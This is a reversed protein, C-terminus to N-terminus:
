AETSTILSIILGGQEADLISLRKEKLEGTNIMVHIMDNKYLFFTSGRLGVMRHTVTRGLEYHYHDISWIFDNDLISNNTNIGFMNFSYVGTKKFRFRGNDGEIDTLFTTTNESLTFKFSSNKDYEAVQPQLIAWDNYKLSRGDLTINSNVKITDAEIFSSNMNSTWIEKWRKNSQGLSLENNYKPEVNSIQPALHDIGDIFKGNGYIMDECVLSGKLTTNTGVELNGAISVDGYNSYSNLFHGNFCYFEQLPKEMTGMIVNPEFAVSSQITVDKCNLDVTYSTGTISTNAQIDINDGLKDKLEETIIGDRAVQPSEIFVKKEINFPYNANTILLRKGKIFNKSELSQCYVDGFPKTKSGINYNSQGDNLIDTKVDLLYPTVNCLGQGDGYFERATCKDNIKCNESEIDQIHAKPFPNNSFGIQLDPAGPGISSKISTLDLKAGSGIIHGGLNIDNEVTLDTTYVHELKNDKVFSPPTYTLDEKTFRTGGIELDAASVRGTFTGQGSNIAKLPYEQNGLSLTNATQPLLFGRRNDYLSVM